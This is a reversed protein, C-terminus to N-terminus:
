VPDTSISVYRENERSFVETQIAHLITDAPGPMCFHLCDKEGGYMYPKFSCPHADVRLSLAPAADFVSHGDNEFIKVAIENMAYACGWLNSYTNEECETRTIPTPLGKLPSTATKDPKNSEKTWHYAHPPSTRYYFKTSPCDYRMLASMKTLQQEHFRLIDERMHKAAVGMSKYCPAILSSVAAYHAFQNFIVYDFNQFLSSFASDTYNTLHFEEPNRDLQDACEPAHPSSFPVSTLFAVFSKLYKYDIGNWTCNGKQLLQGTRINCSAIIQKTLSDGFLFVTPVTSNKMKPAPMPPKCAPKWRYLEQYGRVSCLLKIKYNRLQGTDNTPVELFSSRQRIWNGGATVSLYESGSSCQTRKTENDDYSSSSLLGQYTAVYILISLLCLVSLVLLFRGRLFARMMTGDTNKTTTSSLEHEGFLGANSKPGKKRPFAAKIMAQKM